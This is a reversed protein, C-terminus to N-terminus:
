PRQLFEPHKDFFGDMYKQSARKRGENIMGRAYNLTLQDHNPYSDKLAHFLELVEEEGPIVALIHDPMDPPIPWLTSSPNTSLLLFEVESEMGLEFNLNRPFEM